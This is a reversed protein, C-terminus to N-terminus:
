NPLRFVPRLRIGILSGVFACAFWVWAHLSASAIGSFLAGINCGFGLRAGYGLLLGGIVAALFQRGEPRNQSAANFRNALGAALMAGLLLGFNMVSPINTLVSDRLATAPYDWTWFEFQGMNVGIAELAKAGWVNFAFTISWPAGGIALTLANGVALILIAWTFPWRGSLLTRLVGHEQPKWLLEGREVNGHARREIRNVWWALLGLGVFQLILAGPVGFTAVLPVPDFGPQDLWWPLHISGLVTGVIFFLLTVVMRINGAGVTFLTGSGCGGGLQMGIGFIFSGVVLSTGVPAIAGVMGPQGSNLLPVMILSSLGFLLLQARFGAGRKHVVLNRWGATFGFAGHYLAIGLLAGVAFLALLFPATELWILGGLLVFGILAAGVIFRDTQWGPSDLGPQATATQNM